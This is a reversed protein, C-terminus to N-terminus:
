SLAQFEVRRNVDAAPDAPDYPFDEGVGVAILREPAIACNSVLYRKVEEARLLSLRKNYGAPGSSDTHGLIRFTQVDAAQMAHCLATLRPAQDSRLAASDFDFAININVQEEKPIQDFKVVTESAVTATAAPAAAISSTAGPAVPLNPAPVVAVAAGVAPAAVSATAGPPAIVLGRTKQKGFAELIQQETMESPPASQSFAPQVFSGNLICIALAAMSIRTMAIGKKM